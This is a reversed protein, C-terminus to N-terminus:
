SDLEFRITTEVLTKVAVGEVTGPKFRWSGVCRQVSREFVGEPKAGLIKIDAVNGTEDVVFSVRVWGEINMQRARVPYMPPIRVLTTLPADLQGVSFPGMNTNFTPVSEVMPLDLTDPGSPLRMNVEFPVTLRNKVPKQVAAEPARRPKIKEPKPPPPTKRKVETDPRKFRVVQVQPILEDVLIQDPSKGALQPMIWFLILNLGLTCVGAKAWTTKNTRTITDFYAYDNVPCRM